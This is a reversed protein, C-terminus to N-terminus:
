RYKVEKHLIKLQEIVEDSKRGFWWTELYKCNKNGRSLLSLIWFYKWSIENVSKITGQVFIFVEYNTRGTSPEM